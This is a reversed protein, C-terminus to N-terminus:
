QIFPACFIHQWKFHTDQKPICAKNVCKCYLQTTANADFLQNIKKARLLSDWKAIFHIKVTFGTQSDIIRDIIADIVAITQERKSM